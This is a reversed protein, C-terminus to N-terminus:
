QPPSPLSPSPLSPLPLATIKKKKLKRRGSVMQSSIVGGRFANTESREVLREPHKTIFKQFQNFSCQLRSQSSDCKINLYIAGCQAQLADRLAYMTAHEEGTPKRKQPVSKVLADLEELQARTVVGFLEARSNTLDVEIIYRVIKCQTVDCQAYHIVTLHLPASSSGGGGGSGDIEHHAASVEDFVRLCDGMCVTNLSGTTKVSINCNENLRNFKGPLDMKSNYKIGKMEELTAGYVNICIEKEWKFGHSQVETTM